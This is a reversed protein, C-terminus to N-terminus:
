MYTSYYYAQRPNSTSDRVDDLETALGPSSVVITMGNEAREVGEEVVRLAGCQTLVIMTKSKNKLPFESFTRLFHYFESFTWLRQCKIYINLDNNDVHRAEQVRRAFNQSSSVGCLHRQGLIRSELDAIV